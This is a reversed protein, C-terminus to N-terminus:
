TLTRVNQYKKLWGILALEIIIQEQEETLPRGLRFDELAHFTPKDLLRMAEYVRGEDM